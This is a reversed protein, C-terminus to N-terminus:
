GEANLKKYAEDADNKHFDVQKKLEASQGQKLAAFGTVALTAAGGLLEGWPLGTTGTAVGIAGGLFPAVSGIFGATASDPMTTETTAQGDHTVTKEIIRGGDATPTEKTIEHVRYDDTTSTKTTGCGSFLLCIFIANLKLRM